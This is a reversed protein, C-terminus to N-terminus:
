LLISESEPVKKMERDFLIGPEGNTTIKSAEFYGIKEAVRLSALNQPSIICVTRSSKLNADGWQIAAKLAETAYGKGHWAPTLAWGLEPLGQISPQSDRKFDAFGLEGVYRDSVKESVAWYGFGMLSWHGLYSLVRLWTRQESSPTGITYRAVEPDSWMAVCASFDKAQHARLRLRNTELVPVLNSMIRTSEENQIAFVDETWNENKSM